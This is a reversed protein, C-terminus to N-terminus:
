TQDHQSACAHNCISHRRYHKTWHADRRPVRSRTAISPAIRCSLAALRRPNSNRRSKRARLVPPDGAAVAPAVSRRYWGQPVNAHGSSARRYCRCFEPHVSRGSLRFLVFGVVGLGCDLRKSSRDTRFRCVRSHAEFHPGLARRKVRARSRVWQRDESRRVATPCWGTCQSISDPAYRPESCRPCISRAREPRRPADTRGM